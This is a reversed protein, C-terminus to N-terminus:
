LGSRYMVAYRAPGKGAAAAPEPEALLSHTM